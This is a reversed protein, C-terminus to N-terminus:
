MSLGTKKKQLQDIMERVVDDQSKGSKVKEKVASKESESLPRGLRREIESIVMEARLRRIHRILSTETSGDEKDDDEM